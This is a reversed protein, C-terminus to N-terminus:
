GAAVLSAAGAVRAWFVAGDWPKPSPTYAAELERYLGPAHAWDTSGAAATASLWPNVRVAAETAGEAGRPRWAIATSAGLLLAWWIVAATGARRVVLAVASLAAAAAFFAAPGVYAAAGGPVDSPIGRALAVVGAAAAGAAWAFGPTRPLFFAAPLLAAAVLFASSASAAAVYPSSPRAASVWAAVAAAVVPPTALALGVAVARRVGSM